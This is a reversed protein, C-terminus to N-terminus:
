TDHEYAWWGGSRASGFRFIEGDHGRPDTSISPTAWVSVPAARGTARLRPQGYSAHASRGTTDGLEADLVTEEGTERNVV